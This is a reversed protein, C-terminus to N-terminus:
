LPLFIERVNQLQQPLERSKKDKPRPPHMDCPRGEEGHRRQVSAVHSSQAQFHGASAKAGNGVGPESTANNHRSKWRRTHTEREIRFPNVAFGKALLNQISYRTIDRSLTEMYRESYGADLKTTLAIATFIRWCVRRDGIVASGLQLLLTRSRMISLDLGARWSVVPRSSSKCM